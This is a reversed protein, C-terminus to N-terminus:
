NNRREGFNDQRLKILELSLRNMDSIFNNFEDITYKIIHNGDRHQFLEIAINPPMNPMHVIGYHAFYNRVVALQRIEELMTKHNIKKNGHKGAKFDENDRKDILLKLVNRKEGFPIRDIIIDILNNVRDSDVGVFYTSLYLDLSRELKAFGTIFEGRYQNQKTVDIM